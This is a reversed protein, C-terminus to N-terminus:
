RAAKLISASTARCRFCRWRRRMTSRKPRGARRAPQLAESGQGRRAPCLARVPRQAAHNGRRYLPGQRAGQRRRDGSAPRAMATSPTASSAPTLRMRSLELLRRLRRVQRAQLSLNGTGCRPCIRPNSGDERAPFVLPALEENLADLVDTVRLEKIGDVAGSFDRWFDRLVDKWALKGDSIEDLKEELSATFDYEVYHEFFSEMFATVLRGKSQPILKRKEIKVYERDELTKLTAAYTSPRGIGLEEM